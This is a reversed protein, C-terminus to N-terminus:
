MFDDCPTGLRQGAYPGLDMYVMRGTTYNDLPVEVLVTTVKGVIWRGEFKGDTTTILRLNGTKTSLIMGQADDVVDKLPLQKMSGKPGSFVRFDRRDSPDSSRFRDVLYYVGTDDRLLKEPKRTWTPGVFTAGALLKRAAEAPLRTLSTSKKACTVTYTKGSDKMEIMAPMNNGHRVRPDWLSVSWAEEGNRGGGEVTVNAFQKGDGFFTTDGYPREPDLAIYHSQGDTLVILKERFSSADITEPRPQSLTVAVLLTTLM